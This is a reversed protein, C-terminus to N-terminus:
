NVQKLKEIEQNVQYNWKVFHHILLVDIITLAGFVFAALFTAQPHTQIIWIIIATLVIFSLGGISGMLFSELITIHMQESREKRDEEIAEKILTKIQENKM